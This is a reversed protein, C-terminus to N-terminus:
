MTTPLGHGAHVELGLRARAAAAKRAADSADVIAEDDGRWCPRAIPAPTCSWWRRAWRNSAEIQRADPDVFMSVRIGADTLAARLAEPSQAPGGCRHRRRHHTGRAKGARPLGCAAQACRSRWCRRRRRWKSISRFTSSARWVTSTPMPSTAATKACIRPSATRAPRRPWRAARLPDPYPAGRANRITAVHDINVGLRLRNMM